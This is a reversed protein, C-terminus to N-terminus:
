SHFRRADARVPQEANGYTPALVMVGHETAWYANIYHSALSEMALEHATASLPEGLPCSSDTLWRSM